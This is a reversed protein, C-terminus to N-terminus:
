RRLREIAQALAVYLKGMDSSLITVALPSGDRSALVRRLLGEFDHIYRNVQERFEPDSSYQSHIRNAEGADLLRVARRTFVGRDGRLYAAWASDTVDNSLIKAVDIATSNLSEILLAVRRGFGDREGREQEERAEAIREEVASSTEAITTIERSLKESAQQAATVAGQATRAFDAMRAEIKGSIAEQMAKTTADALAEATEPVVADLAARAKESAQQAADGLRALTEALQKGADDTLKRANGTTATILADLEGTQERLAALRASAQQNLADFGNRQKDLMEGAEKLRAAAATTSEALANARPTVSAIASHTQSAQREMRVIAAPLADGMERACASILARLSATREVLADTAIAGSGLASSISEVTASLTGITANLATARDGSTESLTAFRQEVAVLAEDLTRVLSLGAADQASLKGAFGDIRRGIEDLREALAKGSEAGAHDLASRGQEIMALMSASQAAMAQRSQEIALSAKELAADIGRSIDEAITRLKQEAATTAEDVRSLHSALREASGGVSEDAERGRVALKELQRELAEAREQASSGTSHLLSAMESTQTAARPLEAMLSTMDERASATAKGFAEASEGLRRTDDQLTGTIRAIRDASEGGLTQMQEAQRALDRRNEALRSTLQALTRELSASEARMAEATNLYRKAERRSTRRLLLYAIGVLALPGSAVAAWNVIDTLWPPTSVTGGVILAVIAAVWLIAIAILLASPLQQRLSDNLPGGGGADRPRLSALASSPEVSESNDAPGDEGQPSGDKQWNEIHKAGPGM